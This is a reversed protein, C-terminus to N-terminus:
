KPDCMYPWILRTDAPFFRGDPTMYPIKAVKRDAPLAALAHNDYVKAQGILYLAMPDLIQEGKIAVRMRMPKYDGTKGVYASMHLHPYGQYGFHGGTTGSKGSVGLRQGMKVRDGVRFDPLTKFHKYKSYVWVPLGTDEPAHRIYIQNGVLQRGAFVHVVEGDALAVLPTGEPSSIDFGEHYGHNASANRDSGDFRSTSAFKSKVELCSANAPYAATVGTPILGRAIMETRSYSPMSRKKGGKKKGKHNMAQAPADFIIPATFAVFVGLTLVIRFLAHAAM